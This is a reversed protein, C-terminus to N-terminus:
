AVSVRELESNPVVERVYESWLVGVYVIMLEGVAGDVGEAKEVIEPLAAPEALAVTVGEIESDARRLTDPMRGLSALVGVRVASPVVDGLSAGVGLMLAAGEADGRADDDADCVEDPRAVGVMVSAGVDVNQSLPVAVPAALADCAPESDAPAVVEKTGVADPAAPELLADGECSALAVPPPPEPLEEALGRVDAQADAVGLALTLALPVRDIVATALPLAEAATDDLRTGVREGEREGFAVTLALRELEGDPDRAPPLPEPLSDSLPEGDADPEPDGLPGSDADADSHAVPVSAVVSDADGRTDCVSLARAVFARLADAAAVRVIAADRDGDAPGDKEPDLERDTEADDEAETEAGAQPVAEPDGKVDLVAEAQGDADAVAADDSEAVPEGDPLADGEVVPESDPENEGLRLADPEVEEVPLAVRVDEAVRAAVTLPVAVALADGERAALALSLADRAGVGDRAADGLADGLVDPLKDGLPPPFAPLGDGRVDAQVEAVTTPDADGATLAVALAGMEGLTSGFECLATSDANTLALADALAGPEADVVTDAVLEPLAVCLPESVADALPLVHWDDDTVPPALKLEAAVPEALALAGPESVGCADADAPGALADAGPERLGEGLGAAADRLPFALMDSVADAVLVGERM